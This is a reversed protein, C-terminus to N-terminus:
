SRPSKVKEAEADYDYFPKRFKYLLWHAFGALPSRYGLWALFASNFCLLGPYDTWARHLFFKEKLFPELPQSLQITTYDTWWGRRRFYQLHPVRAEDVQMLRTCVRDSAVLDNAVILWNLEVPQGQMPGTGNLGFRGDVVAYPRPLRHCVEYITEAFYPHLKLREAPEQICGWQNKLSLSVLTNMHIKPVPLSIFADVEHLLRRPLPVALTRWSARVPILESESFSINVVEAGTARALETIGTKAFVEDMSFRNYGGSDAEGIIVHFGRERLIEVVAKLCEFSTMVGPRYVPFTLNPKLFVRGGAPVDRFFGAAELGAAVPARYDGALRHLSVIPRAPRAANM